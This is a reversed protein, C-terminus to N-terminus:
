RDDKDNAAKDLRMQALREKLETVATYEEDSYDIKYGDEDRTTIISGLYGNNSERNINELSLLQEFFIKRYQEDKELKGINLGYTFVERQVEPTQILYEEIDAMMMFVTRYSLKGVRKLRIQRGQYDYVHTPTKGESYRGYGIEKKGTKRNTLLLDPKNLKEFGVAMKSNTDGTKTLNEKQRSTTGLKTGENPEGGLQAEQGVLTRVEEIPITNDDHGTQPTAQVHQRTEPTTQGAQVTSGKPQEVELHQIVGMKEMEELLRRERKNTRLEIYLEKNELMHNGVFDAFQMEQMAKKMGVKKATESKFIFEKINEKNERLKSDTKDMNQMITMACMRIIRRRQEDSIEDYIFDFRNM